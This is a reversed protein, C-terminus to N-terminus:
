KTGADVNYKKVFSVRPTVFQLMEDESFEFQKADFM